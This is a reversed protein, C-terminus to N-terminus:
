EVAKKVKALTRRLEKQNYCSECESYGDCHCIVGWNVLARGLVAALEQTLAEAKVAREIAEPWGERSEAIFKADYVDKMVALTQLDYQKVDKEPDSDLDKLVLVQTCWREAETHWWPGPTAKNCLEADKALDRM